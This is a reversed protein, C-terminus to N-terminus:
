TRSYTAKILLPIVGQSFSVLIGILVLKHVVHEIVKGGTPVGYPRHKSVALVAEIVGGHAVICTGPKTFIEDMALKVRANREEVPERWDAKWLEDNETFGREIKFKPFSRHIVTRTSRKDCTHLGITERLREMILPEEGTIGEFSIQMTKAARSLPSSYLRTPVPVGGGLHLESSWRKHVAEAQAIGLETLKADPGWEITGNGNLLSWYDDWAETGYYAEAVNHFGEGHRGLFVVKYATHPSAHRNLEGVKSTFNTWYESSNDLLGFREPVPGIISPAASLEDQVFYGPVAQSTNDVEFSSSLHAIKGRLHDFGTQRKRR